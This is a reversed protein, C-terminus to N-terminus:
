QFKCVYLGGNWMDSFPHISQALAQHSTNTLFIGGIGLRELISPFYFRERGELSLLAMNYLLLLTGVEFPELHIPFNEM